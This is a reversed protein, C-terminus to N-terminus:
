RKPHDKAWGTWAAQSNNQNERAFEYFRRFFAERDKFDQDRRGARGESALDAGGLLLQRKVIDELSAKAANRWIDYLVLYTTTRGRGTNCHFHVWTERPLSRAMELFADVDEDRPALTDPAPIRKYGLGYFPALESEAFVKKVPVVISEPPGEHEKEGFGLLVIGANKNEEVERLRNKEDEVIEALTKGANARNREAYWSVAISSIFGHSEQRLDVILAGKPLRALMERLESESFQGSASAHLEALGEAAPASPSTKRPADGTARFNRPLKAENQSDLICIPGDLSVTTKALATGALCLCASLVCPLALCLARSATRFLSSSLTM